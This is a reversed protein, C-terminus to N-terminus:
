FCKLRLKEPIKMFWGEVSLLRVEEGRHTVFRDCSHKLSCLFNDAAQSKILNLVAPDGPLYGLLLPHTFKGNKADVIGDRPLNHVYSLRLDNINHAPSVTSIGTGHTLKMDECALVPLASTRDLPNEVVTDALAEGSMIVLTKFSNARGGGLRAIFEGIRKEAIILYENNHKVLAYAKKDNILVAKAALM